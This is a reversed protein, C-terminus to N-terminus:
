AKLCKKLLTRFNKDFLMRAGLVLMTAIRVKGKVKGEGKLVAEGFVPVLEVQGAYLGYFPSIYALVQGTTYPDDFGFWVKGSVKRPLTHKLLRKLQRILLRFTRHNKEDCLFKWIKKKRKKLLRLKEQIRHVKAKLKDCFKQISFGRRRKRKKKKHPKLGEEMAPPTPTEGEKEKKFDEEGGVPGKAKPSTEKGAGAREKCPGGAQSPGKAGPKDEEGLAEESSPPGKANEGGKAKDPGQGGGFAKEMGFVPFGLVRVALTLKEEYAARAALVPFLWNVKILGKPEGYYSGSVQYRVPVLLLLLAVLLLLGLIGLLVLGIAKLIGWVFIVAALM